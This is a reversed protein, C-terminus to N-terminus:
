DGNVEKYIAFHEVMGVFHNRFERCTAMTNQFGGSNVIFPRMSMSEHSGALEGNVYLRGGSDSITVTVEVWEGAELAHTEITYAEENVEMVLTAKGEENSPTLSISTGNGNVFDFIRQGAEGGAWNLGIEVKLESHDTVDPQLEVFQNRGNFIMANGGIQRQGDPFRPDDLLAQLQPGPVDFWVRRRAQGREGDPTLSLVEGEVMVREGDGISYAVQLHDHGGGEKHLARMYYSKGEELLIQKSRQGSQADWVNLATYPVVVAVREFSEPDEPDKSLWLEGSDDCCLWFTYEGTEPPHFWATVKQGYNDAFNIPPNMTDIVHDIDVAPEYRIREPVEIVEAGGHLYGWTLGHDDLVLTPHPNDFNYRLYLGNFCEGTEGPNQGAGWSWSLWRGGEILENGKAFNGDMLATGRAVGGYQIAMGKLTVRGETTNGSELIAHEALKAHGGLTSGRSVWGFDRVRAYDKVTSNQNVLGYGSIIANDHVHGNDIVAYDEIRANGSVTSNGVVWANPGIYATEAVTASAEVFGGGNAHPAGQRGAFKEEYYEIAMNRPTAGDLRVRYPFQQKAFSRVDGVMNIPMVKTPIAAVVLYLEQDGPEMAMSVPGSTSRIDGYRPAGDAAVVVLGYHWDSGREPNVYGALDVTVEDGDWHLPVLNWGTQQPAQNKMPRYWGPMYSIERLMIRGHRVIQEMNNRIQDRFHEERRPEDPIVPPHIIYDWTVNRQVMRAWEYGLSTEPDPNFRKFTIWPYADSEGSYWMKSIFMPTYQETHALHRMMLQADYYSRGTAEFLAQDRTEVWATGSQWVGVWTQPFNAHVEWYNGQMGGGTQGQAGHVLEHPNMHGPGQMPYGFGLEGQWGMWSAGDTPAIHILYKVGDGRYQAKSSVIPMRLAHIESYAHYCYESLTLMRPVREHDRRQHENFAEIRSNPIRYRFHTSTAEFYDDPDADSWTDYYYGQEPNANPDINPVLTTGLMVGGRANRAIGEASLAGRHVRVVAIHGSFSPLRQSAGGLVMRHGESIRSQRPMERSREGDVYWTENEGDAVVVIHRWDPSGALDPPWPLAASQASGDESQWGLIVERRQPDENRVWVEVTFTNDGTIDAEAPYDAKIFNSSNFYVAPMDGVPDWLPYHITREQWPVDLGFDGFTGGQEGSSGCGGSYGMNYWNLVNGSDKTRAAMFNAHLETYLRGAIAIEGLPQGSILSRVNGTQQDIEVDAIEAAAAAFVFSISACTIKSILSTRKM